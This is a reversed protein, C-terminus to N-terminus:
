HGVVTGDHLACHRLGMFLSQRKGVSQLVEKQDGLPRHQVLMASHGPQKSDRAVDCLALAIFQCPKLGCGNEIAALLADHNDVRLLANDFDVRGKAADGTVAGLLYQTAGRLHQCRTLVVGCKKAGHPAGDLFM